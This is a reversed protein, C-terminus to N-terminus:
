YKLRECECLNPVPYHMLITVSQIITTELTHCVIFYQASNYVSFTEYKYYLIGYLQYVPWELIYVVEGFLKLTTYVAFTLKVITGVCHKICCYTYLFLLLNINLRGNKCLVVHFM